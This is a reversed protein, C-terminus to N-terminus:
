DVQSNPHRLWEVVEKPTIAILSRNDASWLVKGKGARRVTQRFATRLCGRKWASLLSPVIPGLDLLRTAIREPCEQQHEKTAPGQRRHAREYRDPRVRAKIFGDGLKRESVGILVLTIILAQEKM